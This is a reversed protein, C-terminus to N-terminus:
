RSEDARRAATSLDVRALNAVLFMAPGRLSALRPTTRFVAHFSGEKEGEVMWGPAGLVVPQHIDIEELTPMSWFGSNKLANLFDNVDTRSVEAKRNVTLVGPLRASESKAALQGTGDPRVSIRVVVPINSPRTEVLVRYIEQVRLSAMEDLPSEGMMRLYRANTIAWIESDGPSFQNPFFRALDDVVSSSNPQHASQGHSRNAAASIALLAILSLHVARM